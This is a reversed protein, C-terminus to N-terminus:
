RENCGNCNWGSKSESDSRNTRQFLGCEYWNRIGIYLWWYIYVCVYTYIYIYTRLQLLICLLSYVAIRLYINNHNSFHTRCRAVGRNECIHIISSIHNKFYNIYYMVYIKTNIICLMYIINVIFLIHIYILLSNLM